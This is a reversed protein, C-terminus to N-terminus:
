RRLRGCFRLESCSPLERGAPPLDVGNGGRVAPRGFEVLTDLVTQLDFTSRSIVKLVDATATQQQLLERLENLLRTNEIAIVAQSAFNKVLEIQKDNFPRVEQRFINITGILEQEKLMPVVLLTRIGGLEVAAVAEPDRSIYAEEATMDAIHVVQKTRAVRGSPMKLDARLPMRRRAEILRPPTNHAVVIRFTDGDRLYLNGFNAACIRIANELMAQFVPELEGPSGSIVRLVESTATQQQLLERLESLLRTNEIAIVAQNAFNQVLEIQKDTFPQVEQRYIGITGVLEGEKLLPVILLTRAGALDALAVVM